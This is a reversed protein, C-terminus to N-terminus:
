KLLSSTMFRIVDRCAPSLNSLLVLLASFWIPSSFWLMKSETLNRLFSKSDKQLGFADVKLERAEQHEEILRCVIKDGGLPSSKSYHLANRWAVM